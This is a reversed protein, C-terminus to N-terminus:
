KRSKRSRRSRSRSRRSRRSRSRRSRSRRSRSRPRRCSRRRSIKKKCTAKKTNKPVYRKQGPSVKICINQGGKKIFYIDEGNDLGHYVRYYIKPVGCGRRPKYARRSKVKASLYHLKGDKIMTKPRAITRGGVQSM